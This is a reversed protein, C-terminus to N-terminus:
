GDGAAIRSRGVRHRDLGLKAIVRLRWLRVLSLLGIAYRGSADLTLRGMEGLLGIPSGVAHATRTGGVATVQPMELAGSSITNPTPNNSFLGARSVGHARRNRRLARYMDLIM